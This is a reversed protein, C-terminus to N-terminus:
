GEIKECVAKVGSLATVRIKAGEEIDTDSVASWIQGMVKIQGKGEVSSINKIVIGERGIIRDANTAVTNEKKISEFKPRIWIFCIIFCVISVAIMVILQVTINDVGVLACIAAALCGAACWITTLGMTAAEVILFIVMLILWVLWMQPM